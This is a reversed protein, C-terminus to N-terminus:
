VIIEGTMCPSSFKPLNERDFTSQFAIFQYAPIFTWLQSQIANLWHVHMSTFWNWSQISVGVIEALIHGHHTTLWLSTSRFSNIKLSTCSPVWSLSSHIHVQCTFQFHKHASTCSDICPDRVPQSATCAHRLVELLCLAHCPFTANTLFWTCGHPSLLSRLDYVTFKLFHMTWCCFPPIYLKGHM